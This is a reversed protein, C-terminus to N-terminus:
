NRSPYIGFLSIICRATAAPQKNNISQSGGTAALSSNDLTSNPAETAYIMTSALARNTAVSSSPSDSSVMLAHNHAPLNSVTATEVETGFKAGQVRNSLGPGAGHHIAVRGRMDPLAFTTRGDGGYMTGLLSFLADYQSIALLQGDCFAWGRPPFNGAFYSIEGVFPEDGANADNIPLTNVLLFILFFFSGSTIIKM